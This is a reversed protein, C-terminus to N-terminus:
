SRRRARDEAICQKCEIEFADAEAVYELWRRELEEPSSCAQELYDREEADHHKRQSLFAWAERVLM